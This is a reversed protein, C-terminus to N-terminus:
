KIEKKNFIVIGYSILIIFTIAAIMISKLIEGNTMSFDFVKSFQYFVTNEYMTAIFPPKPLKDAAFLLISFMVSFIITKGSDESALAILLIIVTYSLLHLAFLGFARGLYGLSSATLVEGSGMFKIELIATALPIVITLVISSLTFVLYKAMFIHKRKSGSIMQNKIAGSQAFEASIFFGALTGIFLNFMLPVTFANVANMERLGAQEFVTNSMMWWDIIVLFSLLASLGTMILLLVWFTKNRQLKYLEARLQNIM